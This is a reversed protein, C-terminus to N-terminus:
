ARPLPVPPRRGDEFTDELGSRGIGRLLTKCGESTGADRLLRGATGPVWGTRLVTGPLRVSARVSARVTGRVPGRVAGRVTRRLRAPLRSGWPVVRTGPLRSGWTAWTGQIKERKWPCQRRRSRGDGTHPRREAERRRPKWYGPDPGSPTSGERRGSLTDTRVPNNEESRGPDQRPHRVTGGPGTLPTHTSSDTSLAGPTTSSNTGGRSSCCTCSSSTSSAGTVSYTATGTSEGPGAVGEGEGAGAGRHSTGPRCGEGVESARDGPEEGGTRRTHDGAM